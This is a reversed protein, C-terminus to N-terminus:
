VDGQDAQRELIGFESEAVTAQEASLAGERLGVIWARLRVATIGYTRQLSQFMRGEPGTAAGGDADTLRLALEDLGAREDPDPKQGQRYRVVAAVCGAALAALAVGSLVRNATKSM